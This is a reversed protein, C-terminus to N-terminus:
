NRAIIEREGRYVATNTTLKGGKRRLAMSPRRRRLSSHRRRRPRPRAIRVAGLRAFPERWRGDDDAVLQPVGLVRSWSQWEAFADDAETSVFLTLALGPDKHELVVSVTPPEGGEGANLRIAVGAYASVPMNLAMHMGAVSRRIVLRERFLEIQRVRGDAAADSVAFAL